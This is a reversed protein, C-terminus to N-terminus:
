NKVTFPILIFSLNRHVFRFTRSVAPTFKIFNVFVYCLTICPTNLLRSIYILTIFVELLFSNFMIYSNVVLFQLQYLQVARYVVRLFYLVSHFSRYSCIHSSSLTASCFKHSNIAILFGCDRRAFPFCQLNFTWNKLVDIPFSGLFELFELYM